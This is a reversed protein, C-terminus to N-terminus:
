YHITLQFNKLKKWIEKKAIFILIRYRFQSSLDKSPKVATDLCFVNKKILAWDIKYDNVM